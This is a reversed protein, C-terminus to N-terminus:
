ITTANITVAEPAPELVTAAIDGARASDGDAGSLATTRRASGIWRALRHSPREVMLYFVYAGVLSSLIVM